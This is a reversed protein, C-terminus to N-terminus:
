PQLRIVSWPMAAAPTDPTLTRTWAARDHLRGEGSVWLEAHQVHLVYGGWHPPRPISISADPDSAADLSINFRQLVEYLQQFLQDQGSCPRSQQSAWAGVRSLIPRSAFYADSVADSARVVPGELRVQRDLADWHFVVAAYPNAHLADAKRSTYNTFFTITGATTDIAKCLVIRASPRGDPDVTALAMANPNPQVRLTHAQDFWQKFLHMPEHPLPDPLANPVPSPHERPDTQDFSAADRPM